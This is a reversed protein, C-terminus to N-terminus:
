IKLGASNDSGGLFAKALQWCCRRRRDNPLRYVTQTTKLLVSNTKQTTAPNWNLCLPCIFILMTMQWTNNACSATSVVDMSEETEHHSAAYIYSSSGTEPM